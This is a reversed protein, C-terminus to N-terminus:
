SPQREKAYAGKERRNARRLSVVRIREGRPTIVAAHLLGDIFGLVRLRREGDDKRGDEVSIATEVDIDAFREFSIGREKINRANKALDFELEM